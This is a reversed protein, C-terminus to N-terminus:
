SKEGSINDCFKKCDQDELKAKKQIKYGHEDTGTAFFIEDHEGKNFLLNVIKL